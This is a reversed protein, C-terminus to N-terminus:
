LCAARYTDTTNVVIPKYFWIHHWKPSQNPALVLMESRAFDPYVPNDSCFIGISYQGSSLNGVGDWFSVGWVKGHQSFKFSGGVWTTTTGTPGTTPNVHGDWWGVKPTGHFRPM